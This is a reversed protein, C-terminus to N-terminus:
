EFLGKLYILGKRIEDATAPQHAEIVKLTEPRVYPKLISFDFTGALPAKHDEMLNIIDHLHVGILRSHFKELLTLHNELGLRQFVEAHGV